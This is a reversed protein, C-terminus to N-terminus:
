FNVGTYFESGSNRVEILSSLKACIPKGFENNRLLTSAKPDDYGSALKM